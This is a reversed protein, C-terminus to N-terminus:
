GARGGARAKSGARLFSDLDVKYLQALARWSPSDLEAQFAALEEARSALGEFFGTFLEPFFQRADFHEITAEIDQAVIAAKGHENRGLLTEFARLKDLLDFFHTSARLTVKSGAARAPVRAPRPKPERAAPPPDSDDDDDAAGESSAAEPKRLLPQSAAWVDPIKALVGDLGRTRAAAAVAECLADWASPDRGEPWRDLAKEVEGSRAAVSLAVRVQDLTAAFALTALKRRKDEAAPELLAWEGDLLRAMRELVAAAGVVPQDFAVAQLLVSLGRVDYKGEVLLPKLAELAERARRPEGALFGRAAQLRELDRDDLAASAALEAPLGLAPWDVLARLREADM